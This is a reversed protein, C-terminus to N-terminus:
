LEKDELVFYLNQLKHVYHPHSLIIPSMRWKTMGTEYTKSPFDIVLDGFIYTTDGIKEFGFKILRDETLPIGCLDSIDTQDIVFQNAFPIDIDYLEVKFFEILGIKQPCNNPLHVERDRNITDVYNGIRLESAKM